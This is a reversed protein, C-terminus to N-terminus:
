GHASTVWSTKQAALYSCTQNVCQQMYSLISFTGDILDTEGSIVNTLTVRSCKRKQGLSSTPGDDRHHQASSIVGGSGNAAAQRRSARAGCREAAMEIRDTGERGEWEGGLSTTLGDTRHHQASGAVM